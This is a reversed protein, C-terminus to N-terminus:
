LFNVSFEKMVSTVVVRDFLLYPTSRYSKYWFEQKKVWLQVCKIRTLIEKKFDIGMTTTPENATVAQM